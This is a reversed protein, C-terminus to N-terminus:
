ACNFCCGERDSAALDNPTLPTHCERCKPQPKQAPAVTKKEDTVIKELAEIRENMVHINVSYEGDIVMQKRHAFIENAIVMEDFERGTERYEKKANKLSQLEIEKETM